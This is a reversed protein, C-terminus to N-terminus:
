FGKIDSDRYTLSQRRDGGSKHILYDKLETLFESIAGINPKHRKSVISIIVESNNPQNLIIMVNYKASPSIILNQNSKTFDMM